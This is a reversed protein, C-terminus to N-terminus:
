PTGSRGAAHDLVTGWREKFRLCNLLTTAFRADGDAVHVYSQRELHWLGPARLLRVGRGQERLRLCLDGDEFDGLVYRPDFVRGEPFDSRRLLVLAATVAEAEVPAELQWSPAPLGKARHESAWLGEFWPVRQFHMGDHQITGDEFRMSFGVCGTRPNEDMHAIARDLFTFEECYVDSNMLLLYTGRAHAAGINNAHAFGGNTGLVLLTTPQRVLDRYEGFARYLREALGPDDCVFVWEVDAPARAQAMLHDLLFFDEGYFPVIVSARCATGPGHGAPGFRHERVIRPAAPPTAVLPQTLRLFAATAPLGSRQAATLAYGLLAPLPVREVSVTLERSWRVEGRAVRCLRVAGFGHRPLPVTAWFGHGTGTAPRGIALLHTRVDERPEHVVDLRLPTSGPAKDLWYLTGSEAGEAWGKVLVQQGDASRASDLHCELQADAPPSPWGGLAVQLPWSWASPDPSTSRWKSMFVARGPSLLVAYM